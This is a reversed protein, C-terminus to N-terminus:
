ALGTDDAHGEMRGVVFEDSCVGQGLAGDDLDISRREPLPIFCVVAQAQASPPLLLLISSNLLLLALANVLLVRVALLASLNLRRQLALELCTTEVSDDGGPRALTSATVSVNKLSLLQCEVLTSDPLLRSTMAFPIPETKMHDNPMCCITRPRPITQYQM